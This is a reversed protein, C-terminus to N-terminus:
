LQRFLQQKLHLLVLLGSVGHNGYHEKETQCTLLFMERRKRRKMWDTKVSLVCKSVRSVTMYFVTKM